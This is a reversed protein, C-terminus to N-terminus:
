DYTTERMAYNWSTVIDSSIKKPIIRWSSVSDRYAGISLTAQEWVLEGESYDDTNAHTATATFTQLSEYEQSLTQGSTPNNIKFALRLHARIDLSM